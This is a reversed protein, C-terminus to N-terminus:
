KKKKKSQNAGKEKLHREFAHCKSLAWAITVFILTKKEGKIGDFKQIVQSL